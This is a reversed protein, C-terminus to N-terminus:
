LYTGIPLSSAYEQRDIVSLLSGTTVPAGALLIARRVTEVIDAGNGHFPM